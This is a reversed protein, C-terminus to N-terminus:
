QITATFRLMRTTSGEIDARKPRQWDVLDVEIRFSLGSKAEITKWLRRQTEESHQYMKAGPSASSEYAGPKDTGVQRGFIMSGPRKRLLCTVTNAMVELQKDLDFLHFMSSAHIVDFGDGDASGGIAGGTHGVKKLSEM